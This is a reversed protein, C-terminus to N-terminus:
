VNYEAQNGPLKLDADRRSRRAIEAANHRAVEEKTVTNTVGFLYRAISGADRRVFSPIHVYEGVADRVTSKNPTYDNHATRGIVRSRIIEITHGTSPAYYESFTAHAGGYNLVPPIYKEVKKQENIIKFSGPPFKSDHTQAWGGVSITALYTKGSHTKAWEYDWARTLSEVTAIIKIKTKM